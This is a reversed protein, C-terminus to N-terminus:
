NKLNDPKKPPEPKPEEKSKGKPNFISELDLNSLDGFNGVGGLKELMENLRTGLNKMQESGKACSILINEVYQEFSRINIKDKLLYSMDEYQKKLAEYIETEIEVTLKFKAM